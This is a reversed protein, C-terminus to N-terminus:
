LVHVPPPSIFNSPIFPLFLLLSLTLPSSRSSSSLYLVLLHVPPLPPSIFNSSIFPLFLLLSLTLPSSCSSSSLYLKLLHVPPLPPSIFNSPILPLFLLSLTQFLFLSLPICFVSDLSTAPSSGPIRPILSTLLFSVVLRATHGALVHPEMQPLSCSSSTRPYRSSPFHPYGRDM